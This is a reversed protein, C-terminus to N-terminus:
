NMRCYPCTSYGCMFWLNCKGKRNGHGPLSSFPCSTYECPSARSCAPKAQQQNWDGLTAGTPTVSNAFARAYADPPGQFQTPASHQGLGYPGAWNGPNQSGPTPSPNIASQLQGSGLQGTPPTMPFPPVGTNNGPPMTGGQQAGNDWNSLLDAYKVRKRAKFAALEAPSMDDTLFALFADTNGTPADTQVSSATTSPNAQVAATTNTTAQTTAANNATAAPVPATTTNTGDTATSPATTATSPAPAAAPVTSSPAPAPTPATTAPNSGGTLDVVSAKTKGTDFGEPALSLLTQVANNYEAKANADEQQASTKSNEFIWVKAAANQITQHQYHFSTLGFRDIVATVSTPNIPKKGKSMFGLSEVQDRQFMLPITKKPNNARFDDLKAKTIDVIARPINVKVLFACYIWHMCWDLSSFQTPSHQEVFERMQKETQARITYTKAVGGIVLETVPQKASEPDMDIDKLITKFELIEAPTAFPPPVM